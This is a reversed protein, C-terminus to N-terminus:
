SSSAANDEGLFRHPCEHAAFATYFDRTAKEPDVMADPPTLFLQRCKNCWGHTPIGQDSYLLNTLTRDAMTANQYRVLVIATIFLVSCHSVRVHGPAGTDDTKVPATQARKGGFICPQVGSEATASKSEFRDICCTPPRHLPGSLHVLQISHTNKEEKLNGSVLDAM